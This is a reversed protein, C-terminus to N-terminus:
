GRRLGGAGRRGFLSQPLLLIFEVLEAALSRLELCAHLL